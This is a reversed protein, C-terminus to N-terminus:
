VFMDSRKSLEMQGLKYDRGFRSQESVWTKLEEDSMCSIFKLRLIEQRKREAEYHPLLKSM